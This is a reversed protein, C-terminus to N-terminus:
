GKKRRKKESLEMIEERIKFEEELKKEKLELLKGKLEIQKALVKLEEEKEDLDRARKGLMEQVKKEESGFREFLGAILEKQENLKEERALFEKLISGVEEKRMELEELKKEFFMTMEKEQDVLKQELCLYSEEKELLSNAKAEMKNILEQSVKIVSNLDVDDETGLSTKGLPKM